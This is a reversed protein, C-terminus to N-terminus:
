KIEKLCGNEVYWRLPQVFRFQMGGGTQGFAPATVASDVNPIPKVVEYRRYKEAATGPSLSRSGIEDGMSASFHGLDDGYRDISFGKELIVTRRTGITEGNNSPWNWRGDSNRYDFYIDVDDKCLNFELQSLHNPTM